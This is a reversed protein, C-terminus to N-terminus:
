KEFAATSAAWRCGYASGHRSFNRSRPARCGTACRSCENHDGVVYANELKGIADRALTTKGCGSPGVLMLLEGRRVDLDIGRLEMVTADGTGYTKTVGRCHVAIDQSPEVTDIVCDM